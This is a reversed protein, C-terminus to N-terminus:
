SMAVRLLSGMREDRTSITKLGAEYLRTTTIMAVMEEILNVNSAERHGQHVRVDPAMEGEADPGALFEGQGIPRLVSLDQFSMIRLKGIEEGGASVTGDSGIRVTEPNVSPPITIPGGEGAVPRDRSDVIQRNGNLRFVGNRTLRQGAPTEIVFFGKGELAV